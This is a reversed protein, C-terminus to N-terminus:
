IFRAIESLTLTALTHELIHMDSITDVAELIKEIEHKMAEQMRGVSSISHIKTSNTIAYYTAIISNVEKM